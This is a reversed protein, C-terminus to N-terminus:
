IDEKLNKIGKRTTKTEESLTMSKLTFSSGGLYRFYFVRNKDRSAMRITNTDIQQYNTITGEWMPFFCIFWDYISKPNM